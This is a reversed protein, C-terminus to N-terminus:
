PFIMSCISPYVACFKGLFKRNHQIYRLLDPNKLLLAFNSEALIKKWATEYSVFTVSTASWRWFQVIV